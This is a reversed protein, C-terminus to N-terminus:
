TKLKKKPRETEGAVILTKKGIKNLAGLLGDPKDKLRAAREIAHIGYTAYALRRIDVQPFEFM